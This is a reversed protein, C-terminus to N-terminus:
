FQSGTGVVSKGIKDILSSPYKQSISEAIIKVTGLTSDNLEELLYRYNISGDTKDSEGPIEGKECTHVLAKPLRNWPIPFFNCFKSVMNGNEVPEM